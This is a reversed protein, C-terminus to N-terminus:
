RSGTILVGVFSSWYSGDIVGDGRDNKLWVKDGVDLELLITKSVESDHNHNLLAGVNIGNKMFTVVLTTGSRSDEHITSSFLYVGPVKCTFEGTTVDYQANNNTFVHDFPIPKNAGPTLYDVGLVVYFGIANDLLNSRSELNTLVM